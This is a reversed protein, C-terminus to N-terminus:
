LQLHLPSFIVQRGWLVWYHLVIVSYQIIANGNTTDLFYTKTTAIGRALRFVGSGGVISIERWTYPVPDQGLVNLAQKSSPYGPTNDLVGRKLTIYGGIGGNPLWFKLPITRGKGGGLGGLVQLPPSFRGQPLLQSYTIGRWRLM